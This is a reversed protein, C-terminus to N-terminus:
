SIGKKLLTKVNYYEDKSFPKLIKNKKFANCIEQVANSINYKPYFKLEKKIKDSNIHYSRRDDSSTKVIEIKTKLLM